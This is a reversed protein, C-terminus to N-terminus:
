AETLVYKSFKDDGDKELWFEIGVIGGENIQRIEELRVAISSASVWLSAKMKSKINQVDIAPAYVRRSTFVLYVESLVRLKVPNTDIILRDYNLDQLM